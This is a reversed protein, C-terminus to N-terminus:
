EELRMKANCRPFRSCGWFKAGFNLGRRATRVVMPAGCKPCHKTTDDMIARIRLLSDGDVQALMGGIEGGDLVKMNHAEAFERAENSYGQLTVFIGDDFGEAKMGGFFERVHRVGVKWARWRKCQVAARKGNKHLVLDIGGDPNAGGRREVRCGRYEYLIAIVKEFQFWDISRLEAETIPRSSNPQPAELPAVSVIPPPPEAPTSSFTQLDVVGPSPDRMSRERKRRAKVVVVITVGVAVAILALLFLTVFIAVVSEFLAVFGEFLRPQVAALLCLLIVVAAIGKVL